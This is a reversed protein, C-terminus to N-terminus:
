GWRLQACRFLKFFSWCYSQSTASYNVLYRIRDYRMLRAALINMLDCEFHNAIELLVFLFSVRSSFPVNWSSNCKEKMKPSLLSWRHIYVTNKLLWFKRGLGFLAHFFIVWVKIQCWLASVSVYSPGSSLFQAQGTMALIHLLSLPLVLLANQTDCTTKHDQWLMIASKPLSATM